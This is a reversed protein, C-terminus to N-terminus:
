AGVLRGLWERLAMRVQVFGEGSPMWGGSYEALGMPAPVVALKLRLRQAAREFAGVARRMHFGHTVLVIREIGSQQLMAVTYQGNENTDRSRSEIWRLPLKYEETAVRQATEAETAGDPANHGIGGSFALPLGTARALWVGYRLREMSWQNLNSTGFEPAFRERGGGLVVIATKSEAAVLRLDAFAKGALPAPPHSLGQLLSWGVLTTSSFWLALCSAFVLVVGARRRQKLVLWAGLAALLIFPVPPLVLATLLGKFAGLELMRLVENISDMVAATLSVRKKRSLMTHAGRQRHAAFSKM